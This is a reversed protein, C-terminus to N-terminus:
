KKVGTCKALNFVNSDVSKNNNEIKLGIDNIQSWEMLQYLMIGNGNKDLNFYFGAQFVPCTLYIIYNPRKVKFEKLACGAPPSTIETSQNATNMFVAFGSRYLPTLVLTFTKDKKYEEKMKLWDPKENGYKDVIVRAEEVTICLSKKFNAANVCFPIIVLFITLIFKYM